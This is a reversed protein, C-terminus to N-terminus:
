GGDAKRGKERASRTDTAGTAQGEVAQASAIMTASASGNDARAVVSGTAAFFVVLLACLSGGGCLRKLHNLKPVQNPGTVIVGATVLDIKAELGHRCGARGETGTKASGVNPVNMYPRLPAKGSGRLTRGMDAFDIRQAVM